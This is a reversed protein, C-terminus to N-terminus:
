RRLLAPISRAIVRVGWEAEDRAADRSVIYIRAAPAWARIPDLMAARIARDGRNYHTDGGLILISFEERSETGNTM